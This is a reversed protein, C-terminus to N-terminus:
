FCPTLWSLLANSLTEYATPLVSIGKFNSRDM